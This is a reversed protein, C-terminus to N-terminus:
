RKRKYPNRPPPKDSWSQGDLGVLTYRVGAKEAEADFCSPCLGTKWRGLTVKVFAEKPEVNFTVINRRKCKACTPATSIM